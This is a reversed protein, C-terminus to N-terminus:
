ETSNKKRSERKAVTMESAEDVEPRGAKPHYAAIRAVDSESLEVELGLRIIAMGIKRAADDLRAGSSAMQRALAAFTTTTKQKAM